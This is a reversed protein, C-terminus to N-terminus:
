LNLNIESINIRYMFISENSINIKKKYANLITTEVMIKKIENLFTNEDVWVYEHSLLNFAKEKSILNQRLCVLSLKKDLINEIYSRREKHYCTLRLSFEVTRCFEIIEKKNIRTQKLFLDWKLFIMQHYEEESLDKKEERTM